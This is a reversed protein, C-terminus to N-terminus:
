LNSVRLLKLRESKATLIATRSEIRNLAQLIRDNRERRQKEEELFAEYRERLNNLRAEERYFFDCEDFCLVKLIVHHM